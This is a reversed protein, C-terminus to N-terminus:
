PAPGFNVTSTEGSIVTTPSDPSTVFDINDDPVENSDAAAQCTFAVTYAGPPLFAATYGWLGTDPNLSVGASTAPANDSGQEGIVASDGQYVYVAYANETCGDATLLSAEVTGAISGSAGMDVLRLSPKLMYDAFGQPNHVSKRLDFDIVFNHQAGAVITFGSNLKLGTESGSPIYLSEESGDNLVIISDLVGREADVDLRMWTYDGATLQEDRLLQASQNGQFAMLDVCRVTVGGNPTPAPAIGDLYDQCTQSDGSLAIAIADGEKPKVSVGTFQVLVMKASDVPADTVSLNMTGTTANASGGSSGM